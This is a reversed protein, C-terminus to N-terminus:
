ARRGRGGLLEDYLAEWRGVVREIAFDAEVTKRGAAGWRSRETAPMSAVQRMAVALAAPDRPPVLRGNVGERVVERNGGVDTAVIPLRAAAAELLVMPLGEWASSLLYADAAHMLQPVDRRVGLFTVRAGAPGLRSRLADLAEREPGGGVVLVVFPDTGRSAEAVARLLTPYDKQVDLRGVALWVFAEGLGLDRRMSERDSAGPAFAGLDLGNPLYRIKSRPAAGVRVYREVCARCVNTTLSCLPDTVRYAVERWRAGENINHATSVQVPMPALMRTLRSLLNAHVMHSHVVDPRWRRVIAALRSLGRPDARGLHMGLSTLPIDLAALEDRYNEPHIMSVVAVPHDRRKLERALLFVQREAGGGMMSTSVLLV